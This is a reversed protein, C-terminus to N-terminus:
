PFARSAFLQLKSGLIHIGAYTQPLIKLIKLAPILIKIKKPYLPLKFKLITSLPTWPTGLVPMSSM